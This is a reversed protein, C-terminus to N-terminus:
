KRRIWISSFANPDKSIPQYIPVNASIFAEDFHRLIPMSLVIEFETNFALFAQLVMAENWFMPEPQDFIWREAPYPFNYPFSIDHIHVYVGSKVSPVVDLLLRSVDSDIKLAHSSDIFLVDGSELEDFVDQEVDQVLKPIIEIGDISYLKKFPFPEICTIQIPSGDAENKKGALSCYYTSLGSGVELYRRPKLERIMMYLTFADVATYGLGYGEKMLTEYPLIDNFEELYRSSLHLLWSKMAETDYRVGRLESPRNWRQENRKLEDVTPLPSYYNTRRSVDYGILGLTKALASPITQSYVRYLAKKVPLPLIKRAYNRLM